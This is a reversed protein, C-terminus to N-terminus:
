PTRPEDFSNLGGRFSGRVGYAVMRGLDRGEEVMRQPFEPWGAPPPADAVKKRFYRSWRSWVWAPGLASGAVVATVPVQLLAYLILM